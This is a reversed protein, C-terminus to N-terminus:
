VEFVMTPALEDEVPGPCAGILLRAQVVVRFQYGGNGERGGGLRRKNSAVLLITFACDPQDIRRDFM